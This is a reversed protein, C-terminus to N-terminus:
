RNVMIFKFGNSIIFKSAQRLQQLIRYLGHILKEIWVDALLLAWNFDARGYGPSNWLDTGGKPRCSDLCSDCSNHM